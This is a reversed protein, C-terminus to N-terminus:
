SSFCWQIAIGPEGEAVSFKDCVWLDGVAALQGKLYILPVRHRLWPELGYEQFLKKLTNSGNRGVPTCREGGSRFRVDVVSGEVLRLGRGTEATTFLQSNDPLVLSQSTKWTLSEPLQDPTDVGVPLLYLRRHFRRLQVGAWSVLPEADQRAPLLEHLVTDVIRHGPQPLQHQGAWHRLLNGQRSVDLTMMPELAISWGIREPREYVAILDQAALVEALQDTEDCLAASHAVRAPYDPWREAIVPVVKKRLFNRDFSLDENSEDEIWSLGEANAYEELEARTYSLLPRLLEGEGLSRAQPMGALGKPGSGRLLRYLVTEVQDDAHHALLMLDSPMLLEEFVSYRAERAAQEWGQGSNEVTVTETVMSVGLADCCSQCHQQWANANGSLQHNIHVATISETGLLKALAHLLVHSDLGGSYGLYCHGAASIKPVYPALHDPSFPM